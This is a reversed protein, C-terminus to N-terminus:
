ASAMPNAPYATMVSQSLWSSTTAAVVGGPDRWNLVLCIGEQLNQRLGDSSSGTRASVKAGVESGCALRYAASELLDLLGLPRVYVNTVHDRQPERNEAKATNVLKQCWNNPLEPAAWIRRPDINALKPM